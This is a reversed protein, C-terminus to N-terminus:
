DKKLNGKYMHWKSDNDPMIWVETYVDGSVSEEMPGFNIQVHYPCGEARGDTDYCLVMGSKINSGLEDETVLVTIAECVVGNMTFAIKNRGAYFDDNVDDKTLPEKFLEFEFNLNEARRFLRAMKLNGKATLNQTLPLEGFTIDSWNAWVSGAALLSLLTLLRFANRNM